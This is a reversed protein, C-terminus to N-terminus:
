SSLLYVLKCTRVVVCQLMSRCSTGVAEQGAAVVRRESALMSVIRRKRQYLRALRKPQRRQHPLDISQFGLALLVHAAGNSRRRRRAKPLIQLIRGVRIRGRGVRRHMHCGECSGAIPKSTSRSSTGDCRTIPPPLVKRSGVCAAARPMTHRGNRRNGVKGQLRGAAARM